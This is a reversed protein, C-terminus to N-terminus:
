WDDEAQFQVSLCVACQPVSYVTACQVWTCLLHRLNAVPWYHLASQMPFLAGKTKIEATMHAIKM